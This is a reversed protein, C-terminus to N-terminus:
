FKISIDRQEPDKMWNIRTFCKRKPELKYEVFRMPLAFPDPKRNATVCIHAFVIKTTSQYKGSFQPGLDSLKELCNYFIKMMKDGGEDEQRPLNLHVIKQDNYATIIDGYKFGTVPLYQSKFQFAVWETFFTSKGTDSEDSWIWYIRRTLPVDGLEQNLEDQWQYPEWMPKQVLEWRTNAYVERCWHQAITYLKAHREILIPWPLGELCAAKFSDYMRLGSRGKEEQTAPRDGFEYWEENPIPDEDRVKRVYKYNCEADAVAYILSCGRETGLLKKMWAHAATGTKAQKFSIYGQIHPTGTEPATEKAVILYKVQGALKHDSITTLKVWNEETYNNITICYARVGKKPM